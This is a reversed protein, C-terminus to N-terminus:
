LVKVAQMAIRPLDSREIGMRALEADSKDALTEYIRYARIGSVLGFPDFRTPGPAIKEVFAKLDFRGQQLTATTM